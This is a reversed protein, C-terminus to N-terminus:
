KNKFFVKIFPISKIGFQNILQLYDKENGWIGYKSINKEYKVIKVKKLDNLKSILYNSINDNAVIAEDYTLYIFLKDNKKLLTLFEIVSSIFYDADSIDNMSKRHLSYLFQCKKEKIITLFRETRRKVKDQSSTNDLLDKEHIFESYTYKESVLYGNSNYFMNKQFNQFSENSNKTVFEIGKVPNTYLWDFPLSHKRLNIKKLLHATHCDCGIPVIEKFTIRKKEIFFIKKYNKNNIIKIKM